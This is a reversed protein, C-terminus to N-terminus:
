FVHRVGMFLSTQGDHGDLAQGRGGVYNTTANGLLGSWDGGVRDLSVGLYISSRPSFRQEAMGYLTSRSGNFGQARTRNHILNGLVRVSATAQYSAGVYGFHDRRDSAFVSSIAAKHQATAPTTLSTITGFDTGGKSADFGADRTSHLLDAFLTWAGTTWKAGVMAATMKRRQDDHSQQYSGVATLGGAIYRLGLGNSSMAKRSAAGEGLAYQAMVDLAGFKGSYTLSNDLRQGTLFGFWANSPSAGVMLPEVAAMMTNAATYQRGLGLDGWANGIRVYAQRGFMQGQQDLVGTDIQLGQELVFGARWGGGLDENGKFGLRNGSQFGQGGQQLSVQSKGAPNTHTQYAVAADLIGYLTVTSQASAPPAVALTAALVAPLPLLVSRGSARRSRSLVPAAHRALFRKM